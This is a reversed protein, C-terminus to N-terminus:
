GELYETVDIGAAKLKKDVRRYYRKYLMGFKQRQDKEVPFPISGDSRLADLRYSGHVKWYKFLGVRVADKPCGFSCDMCLVCDHGFVYKGDIKKINHEPCTKVCRDCGVCKDEDVKFRPGHTHAFKQEIFGIPALWLSKVHRRKVKERKGAAIDRVNADALAHAYIWMHKAMGNTHRFIMNYPMVFHRVSVVDYGRKKMLGVCKDAARENMKLGEGSTMFVFARKKDDKVAELKKCFEVAPEPASFAHVPFGIGVVDFGDVSYTEGSTIRFIEVTNDSSLREAFRKYLEAVALTNGTGSFAFIGIKM